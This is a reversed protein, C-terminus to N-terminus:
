RRQRRKRKRRTATRTAARAPTPAGTPTTTATDGGTADSAATTPPTLRWLAIQQLLGWLSTTVWYVALGAPFRAVVGVFLLPLAIALGRSRRQMTRTAILSSAAQSSLYALSLVALAAGHPQETLHAIFLFGDDGFLGSTADARILYYLSIFIPIQVLVPVFAGLPNLAHERQYTRLEEQLRDRDASHRQQLRKLHPLHDRLKRQARYQRVVLPVTFLRVLLTLAVVALGWGLGLAHLAELTWQEGDILPQLLNAVVM